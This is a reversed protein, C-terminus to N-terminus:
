HVIKSLFQEPPWKVGENGTYPNITFYPNLTKRERRCSLKEDLLIVCPQWGQTEWNVYWCATYFLFLRYFRSTMWLVKTCSIFPICYFWWFCCLRLRSKLPATVNKPPSPPAFWRNVTLYFLCDWYRSELADLWGFKERAMCGRTEWRGMSIVLNVQSTVVSLLKLDKVISKCYDLWTPAYRVYHCWWM